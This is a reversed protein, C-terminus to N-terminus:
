GIMKNEQKLIKRMIKGTASKPLEDRFTIQRPYKYVSMQEKAWDIIDQDTIKDKWEEKLVIYAKVDEGRYEHPVGIVCCESIAEHQYLYKEVEAPFVSYGSAKIMEKTRGVIFIYGDEDMIVVDGTALWGDEKFSEKQIEPPQKWYERAISPGRMWMEGEQGRPVNKAPDELDAVRVDFGRILIGCSGAKVHGAPSALPASATESMGWGDILDLGFYDKYRKILEAPVPAGGTGIAEYSSLDYKNLNPHNIVALNMTTIAVWSTIKYLESAKLFVETDFRTFLVITAGLFIPGNLNNQMGTIHFIPIVAGYVSNAHGGLMIPLQIANVLINRHSLMAGKPSGTTGSTYQLCALDKDIDLHEFKEIPESQIFDKWNIAGSYDLGEVKMGAPVPIEPVEPLYEALSTIVVFKVPHNEISQFIPYNDEQLIAAKAGSDNLIYSMEGKKFMPSGGIIVAGVAMIAYYAIIFQPCNQMGLYVRDGKQVGLKKLGGAAKCVLDQLQKYSIRTGYFIIATKHPHRLTSLHLHWVIPMNGHEFYKPWIEPWVGEREWNREEPQYKM